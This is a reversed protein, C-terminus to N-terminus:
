NSNSSNDNEEGKLIELVKEIRCRDLVKENDKYMYYSEQEIYEIAKSIRAQLKEITEIVEPIDKISVYIKNNAM